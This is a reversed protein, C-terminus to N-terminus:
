KRSQRTTLRKVAEAAEDQTLSKGVKSKILAVADEYKMSIVSAVIRSVKADFSAKADSPAVTPRVVTSDSRMPGITGRIRPDAIKNQAEVLRKEVDLLGLLEKVDPDDVHEPQDKSFQLLPNARYLNAMRQNVNNLRQTIDSFLRENQTLERGLAAKRKIEADFKESVADSFAENFFSKAYNEDPVQGMASSQRMAKYKMFASAVVVDRTKPDLQEVDPVEGRVFRRSAEKFHDDTRKQDQLQLEKPRAAAEAKAATLKTRNLELETPTSLGAAEFETDSPRPTAPRSVPAAGRQPLGSLRMEGMPSRATTASPTMSGGPISMDIDATAPRSLIKERREAQTPLPNIAGLEPIGTAIGAQQLQEATAGGSQYLQNIIHFNELAKKRKNERGTNFGSIGEAAYDWASPLRQIAM